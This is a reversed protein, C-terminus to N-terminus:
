SGFLRGSRNNEVVAFNSASSFMLRTNKVIHRGDYYRTFVDLQACFFLLMRASTCEIDNVLISELNAVSGDVTRVVQNIGAINDGDGSLSHGDLLGVTFAGPAM